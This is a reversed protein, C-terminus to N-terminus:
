FSLRLALQISRPGGIQYLSSFGGAGVTSTSGGALFQGLTNSSLGFGNLTGFFLPNFFSNNPQGFNPHNFVNFLEARFQLKLSEHIPFDRHVAFDWQTAGFGRLFNRPVNGQRLPAFTVPDLPPDTFANPNLAKGGPCGQGPSLNFLSQMVSACNAGFLYLAQGPVLDPRIETFFGDFPILNSLADFVDVPPASRALITSQISWGRLIANMFASTKPVPIDYTLGASFTHRIDFDSSGRDANQSGPVGRNGPFATSGASGDDISHAWTYSALVQLGRSLRRQFQIQLANYSSSATNDVFEAIGVNPNSSPSEAASTQLLRRGSAGVYSLSITQQRGLAQELSVNWELTYPLKLNPNFAFVQSLSGTTPILPPASTTSDFPFSTGAAISRSAGFPSRSGLLANGTESSVLDYFIGFGGRLVTERGPKQHLEYALGIRPAVNSYTTKFVPTGATAIALNSFDNLNYGTVAVLNPGNLSTPALDLDWRLGYTLTLRPVVRWTDQAFAGLNRFLLTSTSQAQITGGATTGGEASSVSQFNPFQTYRPPAFRPSLRRYDVGVKLTHSGKTLSLSDVINFQQQLNDAGKGPTLREQKLAAILFGFQSNQETFPSPLPLSSLPIAGGFKDLFDSSSASVRSYNFRFDDVVAPSISWMTGLTATQTTIRSSSLDSLAQDGGLGRQTLESPSYNYRGFINAQDNLKHDIRLSYADLTGPNSFSANFAASGTAKQGSPPCTPDTAPNCPVFIEPSNPNPLPYANLFPQMASNANQRSNTTGGPTFSADPVTSQGVQPLRLRLGEYSFFFFTRDKLIPGSFTGGFDNQREEPKRLGANDAFWNNADLVDNRLLDFATGHFQNAGSRTVISIQGGPTRGFEPAYTSTQIRFEQLADVSVLSNTGGQVSFSGLTGGFGNGPFNASTMGINASVGDLTWYNSAARQGNVTFQGGDAGNSPVAVVGPTLQILSQFSRGNLPLNEAFQRDVVTSVTADTTNVNLENGTVTISEAISGVQLRFNQEIHDQVNVILGLFDVQKFGPKQVTIQYPGPHVSAFVYIGANNTTGSATTGRDVSQLKVEAGSVVAGTSDTILGSVTATETQGMAACAFWLLGLVLGCTFRVVPQITM